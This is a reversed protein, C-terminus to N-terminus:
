ETCYHGSKFTYLILFESSLSNWALFTLHFFEFKILSYIGHFSTRPFTHLLHRSKSTRYTYLTSTTTWNSLQTRSKTVRHVAACWAERDEVIKGLKSLNTDMSDTIGDLWRMRQQGREGGERLRGWCWLRKWHTSEEWWHSFDQLKLMLGELSYEPYFCAKNLSIDRQPIASKIQFVRPKRIEESRLLPRHFFRLMIFVTRWSSVNVSVSNVCHKGCQRLSAKLHVTSNM